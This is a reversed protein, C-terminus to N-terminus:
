IKTNNPNIELILTYDKFGMKRYFTIAKENQATSEVKIHEYGNEKCWELFMSVLKEGVGKSRHEELVFMSGLEAMRSPKRYSYDKGEGGVLYGVIAGDLEAVAAFHNDKSISGSFSNTGEEGTPWKINLTSDYEEYEKKFLKISLGQIAKLDDLNAKRIIPEM